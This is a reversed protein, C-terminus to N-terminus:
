VPPALRARNPRSLVFWDDDQWLYLPKVGLRDRAGFVLNTRRDHILFAWMGNFRQVCDTNWQLYAALLVETDSTSHFQHGLSAPSM